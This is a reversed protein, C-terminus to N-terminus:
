NTPENTINKNSSNVEETVFIYQRDTRPVMGHSEAYQLVHEPSELEAMQRELERNSKELQNYEIKMQEIDFRTTTVQTVETLYVFIFLGLVALLIIVLGAITRSPSSFPSLVFHPTRDTLFTDNLFRSAM